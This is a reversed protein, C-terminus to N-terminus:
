ETDTQWVVQMLPSEQTDPDDHDKLADRVLYMYPVLQFPVSFTVIDARISDSQRSAPPVVHREHSM